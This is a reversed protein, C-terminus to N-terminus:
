IYLNSLVCAPLTRGRHAALARVYRGQLGAQQRLTAAKLQRDSIEKFKTRRLLQLLQTRCSLIHSSAAGVQPAPPLCFVSLFVFAPPPHAAPKAGDAAPQLGHEPGM